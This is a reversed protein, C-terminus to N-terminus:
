RNSYNFFKASKASGDSYITKAIVFGNTNKTAPKGTIDYYRVEKIIKSAAINDIGTDDKDVLSLLEATEPLWVYKAGSTNETYETIDEGNVLIQTFTLASLNNNEFLQIKAGQTSSKVTIDLVANGYLVVDGNVTIVDYNNTFNAVNMKVTAGDELDLSNSITLKGAIAAGGSVTVLNAGLYGGAGKLTASERVNVLTTNSVSGLTGSIELTGGRIEILSGAYNPSEGSLTWKGTGIKHIMLDGDAISDATHQYKRIEGAFVADTNLGGFMYTVKRGGVFGGEIFSGATGNLEGVKLTDTATGNENYHRILRTKDGLRVKVNEVNTNNVAFAVITDIGSTINVQANDPFTGTWQNSYNTSIKGTQGFVINVTSVNSIAPYYYNNSLADITIEGGNGNVPASFSDGAELILKTNDAIEFKTGASAHKLHATGSELVVGGEMQNILGVTATGASGPNLTMVGLGTLKGEGSLSYGDASITVAGDGLLITKPVNVEKNAADAKSFTVANGSQYSIDGGNNVSFNNDIEDWYLSTTGTWDYVGTAIPSKKFKLVIEAGTNVEVIASEAETELANYAYYYGDRTFSEKDSSLVFYEESVQQNEAVRQDILNGDQDVRKVTVNAIGLSTRNVYIQLNDLYIDFTVNTGSNGENTARTNLANIVALETVQDSIFPMDTITQTNEPADKNTITLSVIRHNAFDMEATIHYTAGEVYPVTTRTSANITDTFTEVEGKSSDPNDKGARQFTGFDIFAPGYSAATNPNEPGTLDMNWYHLYGDTGVAYLGFIADCYAAGDAAVAGKVTGTSQDGLIILGVSNKALVIASNITWDVELVYVKEESIKPDSNSQPSPFVLDAGRNSGGNSANVKIIGNTGDLAFPANRGYAVPTGNTDTNRLSWGAPLADLKDFNQDIHYKKYTDANTVGLNGIAFLAIGFLYTFINKKM